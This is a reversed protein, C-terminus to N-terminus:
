INIGINRLMGQAQTTDDEDDCAMMDQFIMELHVADFDDVNVHPSMGFHNPWPQTWKGGMSWESKDNNEM